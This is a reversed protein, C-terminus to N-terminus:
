SWDWWCDEPNEYIIPDYDPNKMFKIIEQKCRMRHREERAHRYHWNPSRANAHSSEGHQWRDKEYMERKTM